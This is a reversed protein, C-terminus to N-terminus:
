KRLALEVDLEIKVEEGVLVGGAELAVNWGLGFDKRNISGHASAGRKVNGWPDTVAPALPEVDLTVSRTTGRITLDGTLLYGGDKGASIRTSM